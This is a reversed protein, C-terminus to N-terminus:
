LSQVCLYYIVWYKVEWYIDLLFLYVGIASEHQPKILFLLIRYLLYGETVFYIFNWYIYRYLVQVYTNVTANSIIWIYVLSNISSYLTTYQHFILWWFLVLISICSAVHIFRLFMIGVLLFWDCFFLYKM